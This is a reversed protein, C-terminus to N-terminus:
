PRRYQFDQFEFSGTGVAVLGVGGGFPREANLTAASAGNVIVEVSSGVSRLELRNRADPRLGDLPEDVLLELGSASRQLVVYGTTTLAFALYSGDSPDFDFLLGAASLGGDSPAVGLTVGVTGQALPGAEGPLEMRYYYRVAGPESDNSLRYATGTLTGAWTGDYGVDLVGGFALNPDTETFPEVYGPAGVSATASPATPPPSLPNGAAPASASRLPTGAIAFSTLITELGAGVEDALEPIAISIFTLGLGGGCAGILSGTSDDGVFDIVGAEFGAVTRVREREIRVGAVESAFSAWTDRLAAACAVDLNAVDEETLRGMTVAVIGEGDYPDFGLMEEHEAADIVEMVWDAPVEFRVGMSPREVTTTPQAVASGAWITVLITGLQVLSRITSM